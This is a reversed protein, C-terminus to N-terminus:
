RSDVLTALTMIMKFGTHCTDDDYEVLTALTMMM